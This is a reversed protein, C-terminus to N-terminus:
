ASRLFEAPIETLGYGAEEPIVLTEGDETEIRTPMVPVIIRKQALAIAAAVDNAESLKMVNMMTPLVLKIKGAHVDDLLSQPRCWQADVIEYGDVNTDMQGTPAAAVFFHTDFRRPRNPPTIWHAFRVLRDTALGLPVAAAMELIPANNQNNRHTAMGTADLLKETGPARMLAIGCEEYMERIAAIKLSSLENREEGIDGVFAEDAANVKGGPFVLAGSAFHKGSAKRLILIELGYYGDRLLIITAAPKPTVPQATDNM